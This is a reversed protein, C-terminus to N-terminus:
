TASRTYCAGAHWVKSLRVREEQLRTAAAQAAVAGDRAAALSGRLEALQTTLATVESKSAALQAELSARSACAQLMLVFRSSTAQHAERNFVTHEEAYRSLTLM